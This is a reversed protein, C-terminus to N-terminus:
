FNHGRVEYTYAKQFVYVRALLIFLICTIFNQLHNGILKEQQNETSNISDIGTKDISEYVWPEYSNKNKGPWCNSCLAKADGRPSACLRHIQTDLLDLKHILYSCM